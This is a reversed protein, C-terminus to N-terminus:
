KNMYNNTEESKRISTQLYKISSSFNEIHKFQEAKVDSCGRRQAWRKTAKVRFGVVLWHHTADNSGVFLIPFLTTSHWSQARKITFSSDPVILRITKMEPCGKCPLAWFIADTWLYDDLFFVVSKPRNNWCPHQKGVPRFLIASTWTTM